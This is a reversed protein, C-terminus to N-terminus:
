PSPVARRPGLEASDSHRLDPAKDPWYNGRCAAARMCAHPCTPLAICPPLIGTSADVGVSSNFACVGGPFCWPQTRRTGSFYFTLAM